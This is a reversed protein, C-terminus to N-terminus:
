VRLIDESACGAGFHGSFEPPHTTSPIGKPTSFDGTTEKHERNRPSLQKKANPIASPYSFAIFFAGNAHMIKAYCTCHTSKWGEMGTSLFPNRRAQTSDPSSPPKCKSQYPCLAHHRERQKGQGVKLIPHSIWSKQL